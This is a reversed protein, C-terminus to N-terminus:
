RLRSLSMASAGKTSGGGSGLELWLVAVRERVETAFLIGALVVWLSLSNGGRLAATALELWLVAFRERVETAFLIGTLVMWLSLSNGGRLAAAPTPLAEPSVRGVRKLGV